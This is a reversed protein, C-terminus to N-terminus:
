PRFNRANSMDVKDPATALMASTELDGGHLDVTLAAPDFLGETEAFSFWKAHVAILKQTMRMERVAVELLATNGGHGNFLCLRAIGARKVLAAIDRLVAVVGDPLAAVQDTSLDEWYHLM